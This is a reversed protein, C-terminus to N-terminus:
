IRSLKRVEESDNFPIYKDKIIIFKEPGKGTIVLIDGPKLIDLSYKIAESRDLIIKYPVNSAVGAAIAEAIKMPEENRANDSTIIIRDAFESAAKGLEPRNQQYRGGGHGFVSIIKGKNGSLAKVTKM